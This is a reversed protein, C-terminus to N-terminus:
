FLKRLIKRTTESYPPYRLAPDVFTAKSLVSKRHSFTEFSSRGHYAGTGSTGVGGFPLTPVSIHMITDNVCVGGSSTRQLVEQETSRDSTFIYLALPKPRQNIFDIAEETSEIAIIPLVPGFIEEGMVADEPSVDRLVTPAIYLDSEDHEGGIAVKDADILGAIRRHHRANIIRSYYESQRPDEGYFVKLQAKIADILAEKHSHHVLVYDPAICTQGANLFKGWTIRRAAVKLDVHRDVICPSKGGLELTVPTLHEAAARMVIKGVLEGGTFFIHDFREKLLTSTEAVGGEIVQVCSADLYEPVWRALAASAHPAVESPKIVACNGGAIAGVLPGLVLQVPYNWPGIILVVGLPDRQIHGSAPQQVVPLSVKEPKLWGPLQKITLDIEAVVFNLETMLSEFESKGLDARLAEQFEGEREQIMDRLRRLQQLRWELPRTRGAQHTRRLAAVTDPISALIEENVKAAIGEEPATM